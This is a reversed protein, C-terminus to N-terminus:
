VRNSIRSKINIWKILVCHTLVKNSTYHQLLKLWLCTLQIRYMYVYYVCSTCSGRSCGMIHQVHTQSAADQEVCSHAPWPQASCPITTLSNNLNNHYCIVWCHSESPAGCQFVFVWVSLATDTFVDPNNSWLLLPVLSLPQSLGPTFMRSVAPPVSTKSHGEKIWHKFSGM